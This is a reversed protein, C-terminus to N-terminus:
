QKNKDNSRQLDMGCESCKDGNKGTIKPHMPCSYTNEGDSDKAKVAAPELNMKCVPCSGTQDYMKGNECDMPCAYKAHQQHEELEVSEIKNAEPKENEQSSEGSCGIFCTSGLFVILASILVIIRNKM